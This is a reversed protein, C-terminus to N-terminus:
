EIGDKTLKKPMFLALITPWFSEIDVQDNMTSLPWAFAFIIKKGPFFPNNKEANIVLMTQSQLCCVVQFIPHVLSLIEAIEVSDVM